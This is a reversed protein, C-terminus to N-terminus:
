NRHLPLSAVKELIGDISFQVVEVSIELKGAIERISHGQALLELIQEELDSMGMIASLM